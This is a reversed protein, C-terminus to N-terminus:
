RQTLEERLRAAVIAEDSPRLNIPDVADQTSATAQGLFLDRHGGDHVRRPRATSAVPGRASSLFNGRAAATRARADAVRPSSAGPARDAPASRFARRGPERGAPESIKQDLRQIDGRLAHLEPVILHQFAKKIQDYVGM